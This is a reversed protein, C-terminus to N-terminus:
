PYYIATRDMLRVKVHCKFCGNHSSAGQQCLVKEFAPLDSCMLLLKVRITVNQGGRFPDKIVFGHDYLRQFDEVVMKMYPTMSKPALPGPILGSLILYEAKSRLNEPLNLLMVVIPTLSHSIKKWPQFGDINISVVINRRGNESAFEPRAHNKGQGETVHQKWGPSQYLNRVSQGDGVVEASTPDPLYLYKSIDPDELM